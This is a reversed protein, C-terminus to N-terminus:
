ATGPDDGGLRAGTRYVARETVVVDVPEDHVTQPVAPVVQCAFCVGIRAAWDPLEPLLRDYHGGGQGLRGGHPDFAVGPVLVADVVDPVFVPGTPERIGRYGLQLTRLDAAAVLDLEEGRVRPFLTRVNREHLPGVLRALDVEEPMAAYLVVATVDRLEPLGVLRAVVAESARARDDAALQRRAALAAARLAAKREDDAM